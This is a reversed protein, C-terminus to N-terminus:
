RLNGNEDSVGGHGPITAPVATEHGALEAYLATVLPAFPHDALPLGEWDYFRNHCIMVALDADLDAFGVTGGCGPHWLVNRGFGVIAEADTDLGGLWFGGQGILRVRGAAGDIDRCHDRPTLFSHVTAAPLLRSGGVEGGHAYLSYLRAGARATMMAGSPNVRTWFAIENREDDPGIDLAPRGARV